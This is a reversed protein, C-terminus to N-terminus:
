RWVLARWAKAAALARLASDGNVVVAEDAWDLTPADSIHDSYFRIHAAGRAVGQAALWAEVKARKAAGYCNAGDLRWLVRGAGDTQAATAVVDAIGLARAIADVYFHPSATALVIRCGAARDAAIQALADALVGRAVVGGAFRAAARALRAPDTRPGILLWHTAEKLRARSIGGAAYGLVLGAALPLLGLRWPAQRLAYRLLFPTWTPSRTITKDMDYLAIHHM